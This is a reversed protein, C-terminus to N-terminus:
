GPPWHLPRGGLVHLHLHYVSQGGNHNTNVVIRYGDPSLGQQKAVEAAKHMLHGLLSQDDPTVEDMSVIEKKPILLFHVPAQPNIDYFALCLDDEYIIKAPIEKNIIKKFLTM